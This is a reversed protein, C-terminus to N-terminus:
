IHILSLYLVRMLGSKKMLALLEDDLGETRTGIPIAWTLDLDREILMNCFEEMWKRNIMITLDVFDIHNVGHTKIYGEIEDVVDAPPRAFWKSEWMNPVTCFTCSFPCGRTAVMPISRRSFSNVGCHNDLYKKIPVGKWSPRSLKDLDKKRKRRETFKIAGSSSMFAIGEIDKRPRGTRVSDILELFTEEGEGIVCAYIEPYRPLIYDSIASVSEGGLILPTNPFLKLIKRVIVSDYIWRNSHMSQLGIVDVDLPIREIIEDANLGSFKLNTGAIRTYTGLGEGAADIIESEHGAAIVAGNVYATGIDPVSTISSLHKVPFVFPTRIIRIKM